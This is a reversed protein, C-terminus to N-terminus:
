VPDPSSVFDAKCAPELQLLRKENGDEETATLWPDQKSVRLLPELSERGIAHPFKESDGVQLVLGIVPYLALGVEKHAWLFRKQCSDLSPFHCPKPM